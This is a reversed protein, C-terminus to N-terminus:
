SNLLLTAAQFHDPSNVTSQLSISVPQNFYIVLMIVIYLFIFLLLRKLLIQGLNDPIVAPMQYTKTFRSMWYRHWIM